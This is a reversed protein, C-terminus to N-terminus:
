VEMVQSNNSFKDGVLRCFNIQPNVFPRSYTLILARRTSGDINPSAALWVNSDFLIETGTEGTLYKFELDMKGDYPNGKKKHSFPIIRTVGNSITFDELM